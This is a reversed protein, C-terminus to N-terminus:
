PKSRQRQRRVFLLALALLGLWPAGHPATRCGCGGEMPPGMGADGSACMTTCAGDPLAGGGPDCTEGTDIVGDGCSAPACTTRCANAASDSNDAGEDCSEGSDLVSDGCSASRCSTRCADPTTDSNADGDDCEEFPPDILGDGCTDSCMSTGFPPETCAWGEEVACAASCGDGEATNADDCEEGPGRAGDGCVVDCGGEPQRTYGPECECRNPMGIENVCMEGPGCGHTGDTCEDVDTCTVGSGEYGANCACSWRGSNNTCTANVDCDDLSEACEDIDDCTMGDGRYGENCVCEWDGVLNNCTAVPSCRSVMLPDDCEDIDSCTRGDGMFGANCSCSFSGPPENACTANAGCDDTGEACEDIETCTVGRGRYGSNCVCTFSGPMNNCTANPDCPAPSGSCEDIDNCTVGDGSFGANCTCTFSGPTNTCRANPSCNDTGLRCEDRDTCGTGSMRGNGSYGSPCTCVYDGVATSPDSCTALAVCDDLNQACENNVAICQNSANCFFTAECEAGSTCANDCVTGNCNMYPSCDDTVPAPCSTSTGNCSAAATAVTNGPTGSCSATRCSVGAAEAGCTGLNGPRTCTQCAGICTTSNCCVCGARGACDAGDPHVCGNSLCQSDVTCSSGNPRVVTFSGGVAGAIPRDGTVAGNNNVRNGWLTYNVTGSSTPTWTMTWSGSTRPASHTAQQANVIQISGTGPPNNFNGSSMMLNFGAHSLSANTVTVTVTVPQGVVRPSSFSVNATTTGAGGSHCGNCDQSSIGTSVAHGVHGIDADDLDDQEAEPLACASLALCAGLYAWAHRNM